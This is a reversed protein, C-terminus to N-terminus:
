YYRRGVDEKPEVSDNKLDNCPTRVTKSVKIRKVPSKKNNYSYRCKDSCFKTTKKNGHLKPSFLVGCNLCARGEALVIAESM